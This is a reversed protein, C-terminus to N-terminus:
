DRLKAQITRLEQIMSEIRNSLERRADVAGVDLWRQLEKRIWQKAFVDFPVDRAPDHKELAILLGITGEEEADPWHEPWSVLERVIKEVFNRHKRVFAAQQDRTIAITNM